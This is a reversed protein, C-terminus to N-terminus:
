PGVSDSSLIHINFNGLLITPFSVSKLHIPKNAKNKFSQLFSDQRKQQTLVCQLTGCTCWLAPRGLCGIYCRSKPDRRFSLFLNRTLLFYQYSWTPVTKPTTLGLILETLWGESISSTAPLWWAEWRSSDQTSPERRPFLLLLVMQYLWCLSAHRYLCAVWASPSASVPPNSYGTNCTSLTFDQRLSVISFYASFLFQASIM